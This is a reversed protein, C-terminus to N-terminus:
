MVASGNSGGTAPDVKMSEAEVSTVDVATALPTVSGIIVVAAAVATVAVSALVRRLPFM